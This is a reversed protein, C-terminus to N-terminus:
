KYIFLISNKEKQLDKMEEYESKSLTTYHVLIKFKEYVARALIKKLEKIKEYDPIKYILILDIDNAYVTCQFSGILIVDAKVSEELALAQGLMIKEILQGLILVQDQV